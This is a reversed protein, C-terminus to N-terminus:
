RFGKTRAGSTIIAENTPPLCAPVAEHIHQGGAMLSIGGDHTHVLM